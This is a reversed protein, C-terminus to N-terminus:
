KVREPLEQKLVEYVARLAAGCLPAYDELEGQRYKRLVADEPDLTYVDVELGEHALFYQQERVTVYYVGRLPIRGHMYAYTDQVAASAEALREELLLLIRLALHQNPHLM